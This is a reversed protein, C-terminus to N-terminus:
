VDDTNKYMELLMTRAEPTIHKEMFRWQFASACPWEEYLKAVENLFTAQGESGMVCFKEALAKPLKEEDIQAIYGIELIM